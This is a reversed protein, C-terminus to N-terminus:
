HSQLTTYRAIDTVKGEHSWDLGAACDIYIRGNKWQTLVIADDEVPCDGGDWEIWNPRTPGTYPKAQMYPADVNTLFKSGRNQHYEELLVLGLWEEVDFDRDM